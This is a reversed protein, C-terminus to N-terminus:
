ARYDTCDNIRDVPVSSTQYATIASSDGGAGTEQQGAYSRHGGPLRRRRRRVGGSSRRAARLGHRRRATVRHVFEAALRRRPGGSYLARRGRTGQTDGILVRLSSLRRGTHGGSAAVDCWVAGATKNTRQSHTCTIRSKRSDVGGSNKPEGTMAGDRRSQQETERGSKGERQGGREENGSERERQTQAEARQRTHARM